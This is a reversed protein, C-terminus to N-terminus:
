KVGIGSYFLSILSLLIHIYSLLTCVSILTSKLRPLEEEAIEAPLRLIYKGLAMLGFAFTAAKVEESEPSPPADAYFVRLSAHM